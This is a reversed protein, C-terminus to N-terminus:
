RIAQSKCAKRLAQEVIGGQLPNRAMRDLYHGRRWLVSGMGVLIVEILITQQWVSLWTLRLSTYQNLLAHFGLSAFVLTIPLWCFWPFALVTFFRLWQKESNSKLSYWIGLGTSAAVAFTFAFTFAVAGAAADSLGFAIAFAIAIAGAFAIAIAIAGDSVVRIAVGGAVAVATAVAVAFASAVTVAVTTVNGANAIVGTIGIAILFAPKDQIAQFLCEIETGVLRIRLLQRLEKGFTILGLVGIRTLVTPEWPQEMGRWLALWFIVVVSASFPSLVGLWSIPQDAFVQFMGYIAVISFFAAICLVVRYHWGTRLNYQISHFLNRWDTQTPLRQATMLCDLLGLQLRPPLCSLLIRWRTSQNEKGLARDLYALRTQEIDAPQNSQSLLAEAQELSWHKLFTLQDITAITCLPVVIRPDFTPLAHPLPNAFQDDVLEYAIRGMIEPLHSKESTSFPQWIWMAFDKWYRELEGLKKRDVLTELSYERLADEVGAQPLLAALYWAAITALPTEVQWLPTLLAIAADPTAIALLDALATTENQGILATLEPIALDGMRVLAERAVPITTYSRALVKAAQPLNTMSLANAIALHRTAEQPNALNSELFKFVAQGRPRVDAAVFGFARILIDDQTTGGLKAKFENIIAEAMTQDVQQADALCELATIADIQHVATILQTSNGALGCWLKIVERWTDPDKQFRAALGNPDDVLAAAAFFEQLTLHAFQYRDGGDIKLFLGSREVIEDLIPLTDGEPNRNLTPLIERIQRLVTAYDLSRRDQQDKQSQDINYLALHQLVRRKDSGRYHNFDQQWQELLIDTSRQYFESRSHPLIFSTDTYLYAIITLLLPNRALAMIRPRDRLTQILQDVSKDPPMEREWAALFRRIQQDSFEVVELTQRTLIDFEGRYVATRCTIVVRCRDHQELLDRIQGVVQPRVASNVEDLGDLLLMLTGQQLSQRIFREANPFDNREFAAVLAQILGEKTLAADSLRHLELLIPVPQESLSSLRGKGYSLAIHKLLMSKGSGPLGKVMLRHHRAIAEYADIQDNASAGEVKLPVYVESMSLPPRNTRFPIYLHQYKEVLAKRYRGLAVNRLLKNGAYRAYIWDNIATSFSTIWQTLTDKLAAGVIAAVALLLMVAFGNEFLKQLAKQPDRQNVEKQQTYQTDYIKGIAIEVRSPETKWNPHLAKFRDIAFPTRRAIDADVDGKALQQIEECLDQPTQYCGDKQLPSGTQSYSSVTLSLVISATLALTFLNLLLHRNLKKRVSRVTLSFQRTVM